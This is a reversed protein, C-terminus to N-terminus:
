RGEGGGSRGGDRDGGTDFLYSAGIRISGFRAASILDYRAQVGVSLRRRLVADLGILAPVGTTITDLSSEVFTGGIPKGEANIVHVGIGGGVFPRLVTSRKPTWRVDASLAIDSETIRPTHMSDDGAPDTIVSGLSDIFEKVVDDRFRTGWYTATFVVRWRPAIEGYDAQIAYLKTPEARSPTVSGFGVGLATLRLRDLNLREFITGSVQAASPRPLLTALLSVLALVRTWGRFVGLRVILPAKPAAASHRPARPDTGVRGPNVPGPGPDTSTLRSLDANM